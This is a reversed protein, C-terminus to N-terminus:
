GLMIYIRDYKKQTLLQELTVEGLPGIEVPEKFVNFVSMGTEAFYDATAVKGYRSMGVTRSDGIFLTGEFFQEMMAAREANEVDLSLTDITQALLRANIADIEEQSLEEDEAYKEPLIPFGCDQPGGSIHNLTHDLSMSVLVPQDFAGCAALNIIVASAAALLFKRGHIM